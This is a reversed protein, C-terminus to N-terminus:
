KCGSKNKDVPRHWQEKIDTYWNASLSWKQTFGYGQGANNEKQIFGYHELEVLSYRATKSSVNMMTALLSYSLDFKKNNIYQENKFAFYKIYELAVKANSTMRIYNKHFKMYNFNRTYQRNQTESKPIEFDQINYVNKELLLQEQTKIKKKKSM